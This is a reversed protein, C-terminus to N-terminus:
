QNATCCRMGARHPSPSAFGGTNNRFVVRSSADYVDLYVYGTPDNGGNTMDEEIDVPNGEYDMVTIDVLRKSNLLAMEMENMVSPANHGPQIILM